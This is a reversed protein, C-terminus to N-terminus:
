SFIYPPGRTRHPHALLVKDNELAHLFKPHLVWLPWFITKRFFRNSNTRNSRSIDSTLSSFNVPSKASRPLFRPRDHVQGIKLIKIQESSLRRQVEFDDLIPGCKADNPGYIKQFLSRLFIEVQTIFNPRGTSSFLTCNKGPDSSSAWLYRPSIFFFM